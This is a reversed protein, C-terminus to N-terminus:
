IENNKNREFAIIRDLCYLATEFRENIVFYDATKSKEFVGFQQEESNNRQEFLDEAGPQRLLFRQRRCREDAYIYITVINVDPMIRRLESLGRPDIIYIDSNNVQEKTSWYWYGNINTSAVVLGQASDNDFDQKTVFVHTNENDHRKPRTTSSILPKLNHRKCMEAVLTDKGSATRGLM